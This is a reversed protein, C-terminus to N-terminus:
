REKIRPWVNLIFLWGAILQLLASLFLVWGANAEPSLAVLPEGVLRLLLGANLLIFTAWALQERGRPQDKSFKPFMWHGVGFILQTVWGVMLLHYFVPRLVGLKPSLQLVPVAAMVGAVLLALLLYLMGTKIFYRTLRPM